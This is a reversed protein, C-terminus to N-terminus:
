VYNIYRKCSKNLALIEQLDRIFRNSLAGTQGVVSVTCM